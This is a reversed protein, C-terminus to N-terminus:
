ARTRGLKSGHPVILRASYHKIVMIEEGRRSKFFIQSKFSDVFLPTLKLYVEWGFSAEILDQNHAGLSEKLANWTEGVSSVNFTQVSSVALELNWM